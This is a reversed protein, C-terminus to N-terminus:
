WIKSPKRSTHFVRLIEIRNNNIRYPILYRTKPVLLERTGSIRGPKGIHSQEALLSVARYIRQAVQKAALPNDKAIFELEDELNQIATKLWKIQM